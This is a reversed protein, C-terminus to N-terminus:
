KGFQNANLNINRDVSPKLLGEPTVQSKSVKVTKATKRPAEVPSHSENAETNGDHIGTDQGYSYRGDHHKLKGGITMLEDGCTACTSVKKALKSMHDAEEPSGDWPGEPYAKYLKSLANNQPSKEFTTKAM